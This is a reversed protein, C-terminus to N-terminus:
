WQRKLFAIFVTAISRQVLVLCMRDVVLEITNWGSEVTTTSQKTHM